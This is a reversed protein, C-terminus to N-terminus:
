ASSGRQRRRLLAVTGLALGVVTAPEPVPRMVFARIRGTQPDRASGAIWRHDNMATSYFFTDRYEPPLLDNLAYTQGALVVYSERNLWEGTRDDIDRAEFAYDGHINFGGTPWWAERQDIRRYRTVKGDKWVAPSDVKQTGSENWHWEWGQVMDANNVKFNGGFVVGNQPEFSVYEGNKWGAPYFTPDNPRIM